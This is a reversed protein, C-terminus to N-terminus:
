PCPESFAAAPATDRSVLPALAPPQRDILPLPVDLFTACDKLERSAMSIVGRQTNWQPQYSSALSAGPCLPAYYAILILKDAGQQVASLMRDVRAPRKSRSIEVSSVASLDILFRFGDSLEARTELAKVVHESDAATHCGSYRTIVLRADSHHVIEVTL